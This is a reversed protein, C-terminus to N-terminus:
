TGRPGGALVFGTAPYFSGGQQFEEIFDTNRILRDKQHTDLLFQFAPQQRVLALQTFIQRCWCMLVRNGSHTSGVPIFLGFRRDDVMEFGRPAPAVIVLDM